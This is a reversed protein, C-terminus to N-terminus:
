PERIVKELTRFAGYAFSVALLVYASLLLYIENGEWLVNLVRVNSEITMSGDEIAPVVETSVLYAVIVVIFISVSFLVLGVIVNFLRRLM